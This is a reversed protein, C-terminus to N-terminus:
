ALQLLGISPEMIDGQDRLTVYGEEVELESLGRKKGETVLEEWPVGDPHTKSLDKLIDVLIDEPGKKKEVKPTEKPASITETKYEPLIFSLANATSRAYKSIDASPYNELSAIAGEAVYAGFGLSVLEEVSPDVMKKAEVLCDIREKTAKATDLIWRMRASDDVEHIVEPDISLRFVGPEPNYLDSKGVVAIFTPTDMNKLKRALDAKKSGASIRFSSGSPDSVRAITFPEDPNGVETVELLVGVIFLRNVMAGLPSVVFNPSYQGEERCEETSDNYEVAFSRVAPQRQSM